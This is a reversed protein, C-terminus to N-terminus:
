KTAGKKNMPGHGIGTRLPFYYLDAWSPFMDAAGQSIEERQRLTYPSNQPDEDIQQKLEQFFIQEDFYPDKDKIHSVVSQISDSPTVHKPLTNARRVSEKTMEGATGPTRALSKIFGDASKSPHFAIQSARQPTFQFKEILMNKYNESDGIDKFISSYSNLNSLVKGPTQSFFGKSSAVDIDNVAKARRHGLESWKEAADKVTLDRNNILDNVMGRKLKNQLDGPVDAFSSKGEKQLKNSLLEDFQKYAKDQISEKYADIGRQSEPAALERQEKNAVYSKLEDNTMNPFQDQANAIENVWRDQTWPAAPILEPSLESRGPLSETAQQVNDVPLNANTNQQGQPSAVSGQRGPINFGPLPQMPQSPMGQGFGQGPQGGAQNRFSQRIGRQKLLEALSQTGQPTMGPIALARTFQQVPDLGPENALQQLGHQLRGRTIEEPLQEALGKGIGSGIRGAINPQPINITSTVKSM